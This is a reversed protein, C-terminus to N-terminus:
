YFIILLIYAEAMAAILGAGCLTVDMWTKKNWKLPNM